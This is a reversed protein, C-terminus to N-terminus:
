NILARGVIEKMIENAGGYIRQIRADRWMRAIPYEEMYGYGGFMQLTRDITKWELDTALYKAGAADEASLTGDVLEAVCNDVHSRVAQIETHMEALAHLVTQHTALPRGFTERMKAHELALRLARAASAVAFVAISLRERPLNLKVLDFARGPEGVLNSVPVRCDEFFLEGTDQAKRGIKELARGKTFGPTGAEVAILSMGRGDNEGTRALVLVLDTTMGNTIFTKSGNLVYEDGERTARLGIRALDSGAVPESMAIAPILTGATFGPLWRSRQEDTSYEILYPALIDNQLAFGDGAMGSDAVEEAIIANFRFDDIGAGGFQEPAEFGIYGEAAADQWFQGPVHGLAEWEAVNPVAARELFARFGDRFLEHEETYITRRM